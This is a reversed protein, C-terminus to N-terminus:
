DPEREIRTLSQSEAMCEKFGLGAGLRVDPQLQEMRPKNVRRSSPFYTRANERQKTQYQISLERPERLWPVVFARCSHINNLENVGAGREAQDAFLM